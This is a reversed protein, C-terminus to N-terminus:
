DNMAKIITVALSVRDHAWAEDQPDGSTAASAAELANDAERV